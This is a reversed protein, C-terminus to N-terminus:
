YINSPSSDEAAEEEDEKENSLPPHRGSVSLHFIHIQWSTVLLIAEATKNRLDKPDTKIRRRRQRGTSM